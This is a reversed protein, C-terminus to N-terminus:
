RAEAHKEYQIVIWLLLLYSATNIIISIFFKRVLSEVTKNFDDDFADDGDNTCYTIKMIQVTFQLIFSIFFLAFM